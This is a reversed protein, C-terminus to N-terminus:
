ITAHFRLRCYMMAWNGEEDRHDVQCIDEVEKIISEAEKESMDKFWSNRCFLRMWDGLPGKLATLRPELEIHKVTFGSSELLKKYYGSSPFFWPNLKSPDYGRSRVVHHLM